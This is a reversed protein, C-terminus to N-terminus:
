QGIGLCSSARVSCQLNAESSIWPSSVTVNWWAEGCTMVAVTPETLADSVTSTLGAATTVGGVVAGVASSSASAPASPVTGIATAAISAASSPKAARM